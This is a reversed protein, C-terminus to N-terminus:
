QASSALPDSCGGLCTDAASVPDHGLLRRIRGRRVVGARTGGARVCLVRGDLHNSGRLRVSITDRRSWSASRTRPMSVLWPTSTAASRPRTRLQLISPLQSRTARRRRGPVWQQPPPDRRHRSRGRRSPPTWTPHTSLPGVRILSPPRGTPACGSAVRADWRRQRDAPQPGALGPDPVAHPPLLFRALRKVRSQRGRTHASPRTMTGKTSRRRNGSATSKVIRATIVM